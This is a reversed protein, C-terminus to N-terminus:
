LIDTQRDYGPKFVIISAAEGSLCSKDKLKLIAEILYYDGYIIPVHTEKGTEDHYYYTGGDVISNEDPNWNCFKAECAKLIRIASQVYLRREYEGVCKALELLGAATIM